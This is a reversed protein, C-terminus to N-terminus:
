RAGGSPMRPSVAESSLTQLLAPTERPVHGSADGARPRIAAIRQVVRAPAELFGHEYAVVHLDRCAELLEGPRLLFDPRTPRGFAENGAAFTEYVLVGGPAVAAVIDSLRPRWLYHTVVVIDFTRGAFPWPGAEIDAEVLEAGDRALAALTGLAEASRDVGTVRHGRAHFWRLHRGGGCAVDLLTGGPAALGSWRLVWPSPPSPPSPSSTVPAISDPAM